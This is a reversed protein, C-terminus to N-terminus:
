WRIGRRRGPRGVPREYSHRDRIVAVPGAALTAPHVGRLEVGRQTIRNQVRHVEKVLHGAAERLRDRESRTARALIEEGEVVDFAAQTAIPLEQDGVPAVAFHLNWYPRVFPMM